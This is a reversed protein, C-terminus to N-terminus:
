QYGNLRYACFIRTGIVGRKIHDQINLMFQWYSTGPSPKYRDETLVVEVM